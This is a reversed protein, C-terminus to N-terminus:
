QGFGNGIIESTNSILIFANPEVKKLYNRLQVAQSRKLATFIIAKSDHSYAGEARCITASRNLENTIFDCIPEPNDCMVNFYKCLNINEIVSDIFVSKMMLGLCSYLGTQVDFIFFASLVVIVDTVFLATGINFSTHKKLIMALIDTGGSSAGINFLIASGVAPLIVAFILELFPQNTLPGVMPFIKEMISLSVTTLITVYVTKVGFEKGLFMFGILILIANVINTIASPSISTVKSVVVALGTVGGFSFNNPFKFLYVGLVVLLTSITILAYDMVNKKIKENKTIVQQSMFVESMRSTKKMQNGIIM